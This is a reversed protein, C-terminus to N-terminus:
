RKKTVPIADVIERAATKGINEAPIVRAIYEGAALKHETTAPNDQIEGLFEVTIYGENEKKEPLPPAETVQEYEDIPDLTVPIEFDKDIVSDGVPEEIVPEFIEKEGHQEATVPVGETASEPPTIEPIERSAIEPGPASVPAPQVAVMSRKQISRYRFLIIISVVLSIIFSAAMAVYWIKVAQFMTDRITNYIRIKSVIFCVSGVPKGNVFVGRTFLWGSSTINPYLYRAILEKEKKTFPIKSEIINYDSSFLERSKKTVPELILDINYTIEDNAINGQLGKEVSTNSHVILKGDALVFMAEDISNQQIKEHFITKLSDYNKTKFSFEALNALAEALTKSNSFIYEEDRPINKKLSIFSSASIALTGLVSEIIFLTLFIGAPFIIKKNKSTM